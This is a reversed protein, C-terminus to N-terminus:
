TKLNEIFYKGQLFCDSLDDKKKSAEFTSTHDVSFTALYHRTLSVALKKKESYSLKKGPELNMKVKLKNTASMFKVNEVGQMVFFSFIVMQLSKMLPAKMCPQNEILVYDIESDSFLNYLENMLTKALFTVDKSKGKRVSPDQDALLDIVQWKDIVFNSPDKPDCDLECFAM